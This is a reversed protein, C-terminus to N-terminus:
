GGEGCVQSEEDSTISGEFGENAGGNEDTRWGRGRLHQKRTDWRNM